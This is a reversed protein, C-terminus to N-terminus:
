RYKEQFRDVQFTYLELPEDKWLDARAGLKICLQNLFQPKAPYDAWFQPLLVSRREDTILAMGDIHPRMNALLEEVSNYYLREPTTLLSIEILINALEKAEVKAFRPDKFGAVITHTLVDQVISAHPYISGMCGRLKGCTLLTVFLARESTLRPSLAPIEPADKGRAYNSLTERALVLLTDKEDDSLPGDILDKFDTFKIIKSNM